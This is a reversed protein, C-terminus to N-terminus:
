IADNVVSWGEHEMAQYTMIECAFDSENPYPVVICTNKFLEAVQYLQKVDDILVCGIKLKEKM